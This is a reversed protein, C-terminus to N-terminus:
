KGSSLCRERRSTMRCMLSSCFDIETSSSISCASATLASCSPQALARLAARQIGVRPKRRPFAITPDALPQDARPLGAFRQRSISCRAAPAAAAFPFGLFHLLYLPACPRDNQNKNVIIPARNEAQERCEVDVARETCPASARVRERSKTPTM